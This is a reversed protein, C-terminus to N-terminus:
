INNRLKKYDAWKDAGKTEIATKFLKFRRNMKLKIQKNIRTSPVSGAKVVRYPAHQDCVSRFLQERAWLSDDKDELVTTIHFPIREIDTKFDKDIFYKFM